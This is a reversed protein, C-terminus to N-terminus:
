ETEKQKEEIVEILEAKKLTEINEIGLAIAIEQLESKNKGLLESPPDNSEQKKGVFLSDKVVYEENAKDKEVYANYAMPQGAQPHGDPYVRGKTYWKELVYDVDKKRMLMNSNQQQSNFVDINSEHITKIDGKLVKGFGVITNRSDKELAVKECDFFGQELQAKRRKLQDPTAKQKTM